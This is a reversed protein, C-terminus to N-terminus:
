RRGTGAFTGAVKLYVNDSVRHKGANQGDPIKATWRMGWVRNTGKTIRVRARHYTGPQTFWYLPEQINIDHWTPVMPDNNYARPPFPLSSIIHDNSEPQQCSNSNTDVSFNMGTNHGRWRRIDSEDHWLRRISMGPLSPDHREYCPSSKGNTIAYQRTNLIHYKTGADRSYDCRSQIPCHWDKLISGLYKRQFAGKCASSCLSVSLKNQESESWTGMWLFRPCWELLAEICQIHHCLSGSVPSNFTISLLACTEQTWM